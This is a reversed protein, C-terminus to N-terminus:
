FWDNDVCTQFFTSYGAQVEEVTIDYGELADVTSSVDGTIQAEHNALERQIIAPKGNEEIDAAVGEAHITKLGALLESANAKPAILGVGLSSYVVGPQKKEDFQKTSFAFFAGTRDFLDTQKQEVYHSLYKV